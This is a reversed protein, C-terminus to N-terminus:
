CPLAAAQPETMLPFAIARDHNIETDGILLVIGEATKDVSLIIRDRRHPAALKIFGDRHTHHIAYQAGDEVLNQFTIGNSTIVVKEIASM